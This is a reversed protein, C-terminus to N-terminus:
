KNSSLSEQKNTQQILEKLEHAILKSYETAGKRNMHSSDYFNNRECNFTKDTYHNIFPVGNNKAINKIYFYDDDTTKKYFPSVVFILKINKESSIKIIQNLCEIKLSDYEHIEETHTKQEPEHQMVNDKTFFGNQTENRVLLNESVMQILKSNMRYMYSRMKYPEMLNVKYFLSDVGQHDYYMKLAGLYKSNDKDAHYYDFGPTVEYIIYKPTYRELLIQLLGYATISGCGDYGCNYCTLGLTDQLIIPNYHHVARSSGLILMDAKTRNCIEENKQTQGSKANKTLYDLAIGFSRDMVFCCIAFIIIKIIFKKM